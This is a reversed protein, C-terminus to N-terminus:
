FPCLMGETCALGTLVGPIVTDEMLGTITATQHIGRAQHQWARAASQESQFVLDKKSTAVGEISLAHRADPALGIARFM